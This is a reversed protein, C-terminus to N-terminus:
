KYCSYPHLASWCPDLIINEIDRDFPWTVLSLPSILSCMYFAGGVPRTDIKINEGSCILIVIFNEKVSMPSKAAMAIASSQWTPDLFWSFSNRFFRTRRNVSRIESVWWHYCVNGFSCRVRPNLEDQWLWIALEFAFRSRIEDESDQSLM